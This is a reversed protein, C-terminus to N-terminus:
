LNLKYYFTKQKFLIIKNKLKKFNIDKLNPIEDNDSYMIFDEDDFDKLYNSIYDRQYNIRKVSNSRQTHPEESTEDELNKPEDELVLHVIKDKFKPFDNKDFNINKKKGSHSYNAECVIFKDVYENLVNFRVDMIMDEEFYTTTDIIKM